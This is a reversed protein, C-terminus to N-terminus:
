PEFKKKFDEITRQVEDVDSPSPEDMPRQQPLAKQYLTFLHAISVSEAPIVANANVKTVQIRRVPKQDHYTEILMPYWVGDLNQWNRYIFEVRQPAQTGQEAPLVNIWRLPVFREKDVWVQSVSIDPYQAGIVFVVRDDMRGLSTTAVDVGREYLAKQLLSRRNFLMLDKYRDFSSERRDAIAGDIITLAQGQSLVHIRHTDGHRIDSRFRDPFIFSLSEALEVPQASVATDEVVVTQEVKLTQAAGLKETMLELVHPGELVYSSAPLVWLCSMCVLVVAGALRCPRLLACTMKFMMM